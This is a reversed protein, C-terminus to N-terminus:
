MSSVLDSILAKDSLTLASPSGTLLTAATTAWFHDRFARLTASSSWIL